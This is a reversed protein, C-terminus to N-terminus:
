GLRKGATFDLKRKEGTKLDFVYVALEHLSPVTDSFAIQTGDPSWDIGASLNANALDLLKTEVGDKVTVLYIAGPEGYQANARKFAIRDQKPSWVLAGMNGKNADFDSRSLQLLRNDQLSKIYIQRPGAFEKSWTFAITQGDPSIAPYKKGVTKRRSLGFGSIPLSTPIAAACLLWAVVGLM